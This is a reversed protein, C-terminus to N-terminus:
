EVRTWSPRGSLIGVSEKVYDSHGPCLIAVPQGLIGADKRASTLIGVDSKQLLGVASSRDLLRVPVVEGRNVESLIGEPDVRKWNEDQGLIHRANKVYDRHGPCLIVVATDTKRGAHRFIGVEGQNVIGAAADPKLLRVPVTEGQRAAVLIGPKSTEPKEWTMAAAPGIRTVALGVVAFTVILMVLIRRM